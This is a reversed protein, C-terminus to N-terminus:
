KKFVKTKAPKGKMSFIGAMEPEIFFIVMNEKFKKKPWGHVALFADILTKDKCEVAKGLFRIYASKDKAVRTFEVNPNEDMQLFMEKKNSTALVVKNNLVCTFKVPRVRAATGDYSAINYHENIELFAAVDKMMQDEDPPNGGALMYSKESQTFLSGAVALCCLTIVTKLM